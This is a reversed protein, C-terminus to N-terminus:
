FKPTYQFGILPTSPYTGYVYSGPSINAVVDNSAQLAASAAGVVLNHQILAQQFLAQQHVADQNFLYMKWDGVLQLDEKIKFGCGAPLTALLKGRYSLKGTRDNYSFGKKSSIGFAASIAIKDGESKVFDITDGGESPHDFAFLDAGRGGILTDRGQGGVLLDDGELGALFDNGKFGLLREDYHNGTIRDRTDGGRVDDNFYSIYNLIPM